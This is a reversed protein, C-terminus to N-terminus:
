KKINNEMAQLLFPIDPDIKLSFYQAESNSFVYRAVLIKMYNRDYDSYQAKLDLNVDPNRAKVFQLFDILNFNQDFEEITGFEFDKSAAYKFCTANIGGYAILPFLPAISNSLQEDDDKYETTIDPKIGGGGYVVRGSKTYFETSDITGHYDAAYYSEIDIMNGISDQYVKQISRGSPTYYRAVTLRIAAKEPLHHEEQVLGKGFSRQGIITAKDNDQFAGALIESASASNENILIYYNPAEYKKSGKAYFNKRPRAKGETYVILDGKSLLKECINITSNLYGGGNNRLDIIVNKIGLELVADLQEFFEDDTTEAFRLIKIFGISDLLINYDMVSPIPISGRIIPFSLSDGNRDIRVNVKSGKEGKLTKLILPNNVEEGFLKTSDAFLIKDGRKMGAEDSPGGPITKLVNISDDILMFEVGIGFFHGQMPEQAIALEEPSLYATHPDLEKTIAEIAVEILHERQVDDVYMKDVYDIVSGVRDQGSSKGFYANSSNSTYQIGLYSGVLFGIPLIISLWLIKKNKDFM